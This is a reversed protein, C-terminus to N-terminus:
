ILIVALWVSFILSLKLALVGSKKYNSSAEEKQYELKSLVKKCLEIESELSSKGTREFFYRLISMDEISLHLLSYYDNGDFFSYLYDNDILLRKVNEVYKGFYENEYTAMVESLSLQKWKLDSLYNTLIDIFLGLELPRTRLKSFKLFGFAAISISITAIGVIKMM